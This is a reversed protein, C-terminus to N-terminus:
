NPSCTISYVYTFSGQIMCSLLGLFRGTDGPVLYQVFSGQDSFNSLRDAKRSTCM